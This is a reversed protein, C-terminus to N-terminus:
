EAVRWLLLAGFVHGHEEGDGTAHGRYAGYRPGIEDGEGPTGHEEDIQRQGDGGYGQYPRESRGVAVGAQCRSEGGHIPRSGHQHCQRHRRQDDGQLLASGHSPGVDADDATEEAADDQEQRESDMLASGGAGDDGDSHEAASPERQGSQRRQRGGHCEDGDHVEDAHVALQRQVLIDQVGAFENQVEEDAEHHRGLDAGPDEVRVADASHQEDRSEQGDDPESPQMGDRAAEVRSNRRHRGQGDRQHEASGSDALPVM